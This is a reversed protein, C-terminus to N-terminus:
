KINKIMKKVTTANGRILVNSSGIYKRIAGAIEDSSLVPLPYMNRGNLQMDGYIEKPLEIIDDSQVEITTSKFKNVISVTSKDDEVIHVKMGIKAWNNDAASTTPLSNIKCLRPRLIRIPIDENNVNDDSDANMQDIITNQMDLTLNLSSLDSDCIANISDMVVTGGSLTHPVPANRQALMVCSHRSVVLYKTSITDALIALGKGYVTINTLDVSTCRIPSFNRCYAEINKLVLQSAICNAGFEVFVEGKKPFPTVFEETSIPGVVKLIEKMRLHNPIGTINIDGFRSTDDHDLTFSTYQCATKATLKTADGSNTTNHLYIGYKLKSIPLHGQQHGKMDRPPVDINIIDINKLRIPSLSVKTNKLLLSMEYKFNERFQKNNSIELEQFKCGLMSIFDAVTQELKMTLKDGNSSVISLHKSSVCNITIDGLVGLKGLLIDSCDKMYIPYTNDDQEIIAGSIQVMSSQKISLKSAVDGLANRTINGGKMLLLNSCTQISVKNTKSSVTLSGTSMNSLRIISSADITFASSLASNIELERCPHTNNKANLVTFEIFSIHFNNFKVIDACITGKIVNVISLPDLEGITKLAKHNKYFAKLDIGPKFKDGVKFCAPIEDTGFSEDTIRYREMANLVDTKNGRFVITGCPNLDSDVSKINLTKCVCGVGVPIHISAYNVSDNDRTHSIHISANDMKGKNGFPLVYVKDDDTGKSYAYVRLIGKIIISTLMTTPDIGYTQLQEERYGKQATTLDKNMYTPTSLPNRAGDYRVEGSLIVTDGLLYDDSIIHILGGYFTCSVGIISYLSDSDSRRQMEFINVDRRNKVISTLSLPYGSLRYDSLDDRIHKDVAGCNALVENSYLEMDERNVIIRATDIAFKPHISTKDLRLELHISESTNEVDLKYGSDIASTNNLIDVALLHIHAVNNNNLLIRECLTHSTSFTGLIDMIYIHHPKNDLANISTEVSAKFAEIHESLVPIFSTDRPTYDIEEGATFSEMAAEVDLETMVMSKIYEIDPVLFVSDDPILAKLDDSPTAVRVGSSICFGPNGIRDIIGDDYFTQIRDLMAM